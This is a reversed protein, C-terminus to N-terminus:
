RPVRGKALRSANSTSSAPAKASSSSRKAAASSTRAPASTHAAARPKPAVNTRAASNDQASASSPQPAADAQPAITAPASTDAQEVSERFSLSPLGQGDSNTSMLAESPSDAPSEEAAVSTTVEHEAIKKELLEHLRSAFQPSEVVAQLKDSLLPGLDIAEISAALQNTLAERWADSESARNLEDIMWQEIRELDLSTLEAPRYLSTFEASSNGAIAFQNAAGATPFHQKFVEIGIM